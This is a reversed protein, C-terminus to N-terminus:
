LCPSSFLPGLPFPPLTLLRRWAIAMASLSAPAEFDSLRLSFALLRLFYSRLCAPPLVEWCSRSPLDRTPARPRRSLLRAVPPLFAVRVVARPRLAAADRRRGAAARLREVEFRPGRFHDLATTSTPSAFNGLSSAGSSGCVSIPRTDAM